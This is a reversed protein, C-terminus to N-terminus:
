SVPAFGYKELFKELSQDRESYSSKLNRYDYAGNWATKTSRYYRGDYCFLFAEISGNNVKQESTAVLIDQAKGDFFVRAGTWVLKNNDSIQYLSQNPGPFYNLVEQASASRLGSEGEAAAATTYAKWFDECEGNRYPNNNKYSDSVKALLATASEEGSLWNTRGPESSEGAHASCTISSLYGDADYTATFTGGSPCPYQALLNDFLGAANTRSCLTNDLLQATRMEGLLSRRNALCATQQARGTAASFVPIAVATLVVIIAIVVLLEALTFGKKAHRM